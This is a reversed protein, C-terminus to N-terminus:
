NELLINAADGVYLKKEEIINEYSDILECGYLKSVELQKDLPVNRLKLQSYDVKKYDTSGNYDAVLVSTKVKQIVSPDSLATDCLNLYRTRSDCSIDLKTLPNDSLDLVDSFVNDGTHTVTVDTIKNGSLLVADLEDDFGLGSVTRINNNRASVGCLLPLKDLNLSEIGNGDIMLYKLSTFSYITEMDIIGTNNLNLYKLTDKTNSLVSLDSIRNDDACLKELVTVNDIGDLSDLENDSVYLEKLAICDELGALSKLKNSCLSLIELKQCGDLASLGSIENNDAYLSVIKEINKISDLSTIKNSSIDLRTFYRSGSIDIASLQEDTLGCNIIKLTSLKENKIVSLDSATINCDILSLTRLDGFAGLASIDEQTVTKGTVEIVDESNRYTNGAFSVTTLVNVLVVVFVIAAVVGGICAVLKWWEPKATTGKQKDAIEPKKAPAHGIVTQATVQPTSAKETPTQLAPKETVVATPEETNSIGIIDFLRQYAKDIDKYAEIRQVNSLYFEFESKLECEEIMFPLIRKNLNIARDLERPVWKSKQVNYSLILIFFECKEIASPIEAAYSSGVSISEPALWCSIGKAELTKKVRLAHHYEESKYSIFVKEDAM